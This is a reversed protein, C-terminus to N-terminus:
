FNFSATAQLTFISTEAIRFRRGVRDVRWDFNPNVEPCGAPTACTSVEVTTSKNLDKGVQESTLSHETNYALSASLSLSIFEAAQAHIGLQGGMQLYDSTYLLKHLLDSMENHSRSESVYNALVRLDIAFKQHKSPVEFPVFESGFIVGGVHAPLIGTEARGWDASGCNEPRGLTGTEPHECNSYFGPGRFPLTYHIKFYPDALGIRKSISTYFKYRHIRDGIDGRNTETTVIAPELRAATPASYDIGVVWTPKTDDKKQNFPAWALGFTLDGLGGRFSRATEDVNFLRGTGAGPTTCGEAAGLLQGNAGQCNRYITTNSADTGQAFSWFSDRQFVFPVGFHFEVDQWLGVRVDINMRADFSTFRLETPDELDGNQYWERVIKGRQQTREFGLDVRMGFPDNPEFSSAIHTIDAAWANSALCACLLVTEIRRM